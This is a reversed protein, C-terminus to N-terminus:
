KLLIFETRRNEKRGNENFNDAIPRSSGFGKYRLRKLDVGKNILYDYVSKARLSSLKQNTEDTGTNDTHGNIQIFTDKNELLWEALKNLEYQSDPNLVSSNTEFFVNKLVIAEGDEVLADIELKPNSKNVKQLYIDLYFPAIASQSQSLTFLESFLTYGPHSVSFSYNKGSPLCIFFSGTANVKIQHTIRGTEKISIELNAPLPEHTDKALIKGSVFTVSIPRIEPYLPFSFIDVNNKTSLTNITSDNKSSSFYATEGTRNICLAGEDSITNIPYGLNIPKGWQSLSDLRTLYLDFGGMGKHGNSMFYLSQGDSHIFPAQDDNVTNISPGLNAPISWKENSLRKSMWIDSGGFGGPRRSAFFLKDGMASISPMSEWQPTNIPTGINQPSTWENLIKYSIYLDCSGLGNKNECQTYILTNGDASLTHAGENYPTNLQILPHPMEWDASLSDRISFYIDEQNNVVRTFLLTKGDASFSPLYEPLSTNVFANLPTPSFPVPNKVAELAFQANELIKRANGQSQDKAKQLYSTLKEIALPYNGSKFAALGFGYYTRYDYGPHLKYLTSFAHLSKEYEGVDYYANGIFSWADVLIPDKELCKLLLIICASTNDKKGEMKAEEYWKKVSNKTQSLTHFSQAPLLHCALILITLGLFKM